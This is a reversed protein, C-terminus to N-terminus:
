ALRDARHAPHGPRDRRRCHATCASPRCCWGSTTSACGARAPAAPRLGRADAAALPTLNLSCTRRDRGEEPDRQCLAAARRHARHRLRGQGTRLVRLTGHGRMTRAHCPRSAQLPMWWPASCRAATARRRAAWRCAPWRSTSWPTWRCCREAGSRVTRQVGAGPLTIVPKGRGLSMATFNADAIVIEDGHGMEALVKLLDPTLLPDIGKLM